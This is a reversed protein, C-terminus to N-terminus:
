AGYVIRRLADIAYYVEEETNFHSFSFRITGTPYTGLTKHANPACHLGVRTMIGYDEDLIHSILAPDKEIPQISVVAARGNICSKGIIRVKDISKIEKIFKDTLKLEKDRIKDIGIKNLYNIGANLGLIGPINLTGSEFKDPLFNPIDESHSASGTGGSILPTLKDAMFDTTIFGGIGQPGLLGKHGTFALIDINMKKMDIDFVGATQASDVFFKLNNEKCIEGIEKIPLLTGCVNSAHTIIIAKTNNKILPKVKDLLIEGKDNCPIRDFMVGQSSLQILPRMVANHEMSSVLVHDGKKLYGKLIFNLSTTINSTFIVNKCDNFNFMKAINERTDFVLDAIEYAKNYGGRNINIGYENIFDFMAKSVSNPKPFSTSANDFYIINKENIRM